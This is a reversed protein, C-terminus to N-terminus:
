YLLGKRLGPHAGHGAAPTRAKNPKSLPPPPRPTPPEPSCLTQGPLQSLVTTVYPAARLFETRMWLSAKAGEWPQPQNWSREPLLGSVGLLEPKAPFHASLTREQQPPPLATQM